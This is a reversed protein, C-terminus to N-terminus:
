GIATHRPLTDRGETARQPTIPRRKALLAVQPRGRFQRRSRREVVRRTASDNLDLLHNRRDIDLRRPPRWAAGAGQKRARARGGGIRARKSISSLVDRPVGIHDGAIAISYADVVLRDPCCLPWKRGRSDVNLRFPCVFKLLPGPRRPAFVALEFSSEELFYG